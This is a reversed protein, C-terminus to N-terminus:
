KIRKTKWCAVVGYKLPECHDRKNTLIQHKGQEYYYGQNYKHAREAKLDRRAEIREQKERQASMYSMKKEEQSNNHSVQIASGGFVVAGLIFLLIEM